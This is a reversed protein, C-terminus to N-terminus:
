RAEIKKDFALEGRRCELAEIFCIEQTGRHGGVIPLAVAISQTLPLCERADPKLAAPCEGAPLHPGESGRRAEISTSVAFIPLRRWSSSACSLTARTKATPWSQSGLIMSIMPVSPPILIGLTGGAATTGYALRPNYRAKIMEPVSLAGITAATVPSSGCVAAFVACAAVTAVGLAGPLRRLWLKAATFLGAGLGSLAIM